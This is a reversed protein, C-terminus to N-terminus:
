SLEHSNGGGVRRWHGYRCSWAKCPAPSNTHRWPEGARTIILRDCYIRPLIACDYCQAVIQSGGAGSQGVSAVRRAARIAIPGGEWKPNDGAITTEGVVKYGLRAYFGAADTTGLWIAKGQTDAQPVTLM